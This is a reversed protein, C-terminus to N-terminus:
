LPRGIGHVKAIMKGLIEKSDKESTTNKEPNKQAQIMLGNKVIENKV